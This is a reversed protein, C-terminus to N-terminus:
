PKASYADRIMVQCAALSSWTNGCPEEDKTADALINLCREREEKVAAAIAQEIADFEIQRASPMLQNVCWKAWDNPNV